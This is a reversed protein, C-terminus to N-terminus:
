YLARPIHSYNTCFSWTPGLGRVRSSVATLNLNSVHGGVRSSFPNEKQLTEEGFEEDPKPKDQALAIGWVKHVNM